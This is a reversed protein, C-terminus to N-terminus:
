SVVDVHNTSNRVIVPVSHAEPEYERVQGPRCHRSNIPPSVVFGKAESM